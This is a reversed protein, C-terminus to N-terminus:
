MVQCSSPFGSTMKPNFSGGIFFFGSQTDAPTICFAGTRTTREHFVYL